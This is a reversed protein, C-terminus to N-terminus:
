NQLMALNISQLFLKVSNMMRYKNQLIYKYQISYMNPAMHAACMCSGCPIEISSHDFCM